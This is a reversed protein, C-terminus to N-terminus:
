GDWNKMSSNFPLDRLAVVNGISNEKWFKTKPSKNSNENVFIM